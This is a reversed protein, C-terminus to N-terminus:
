ANTVAASRCPESDRVQRCRSAGFRPTRNPQPAPIHGRFGGPHVEPLRETGGDEDRVANASRAVRTQNGWRSKFGHKLRPASEGITELQAMNLTTRAFFASELTRTSQGQFECVQLRSHVPQELGVAQRRRAVRGRAVARRKPGVPATLTVFRVIRGVRGEVIATMLQRLQRVRAKAVGMETATEQVTPVPATIVVKAPMGEVSLDM